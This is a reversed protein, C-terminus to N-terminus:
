FNNIIIQELLATNTKDKRTLQHDIATRRLWINEDTSWQVLIDNVEPYRFAIDGVIIDIGDVTDWWSKEIILQHCNPIDAPTLTSKVKDLCDVALYQFEREPQGWCKFMFEWDITKYAKIVDRSLKRRLPTQIGLYKFQDRMYASM